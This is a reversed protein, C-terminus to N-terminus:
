SSYVGEKKAHVSVSGELFSMIAGELQTIYNRAFAELEDDYNDPSKLLKARALFNLSGFYARAIILGLNRQASELNFTDKKLIFKCNLYDESYDSGIKVPVVLSSGHFNRWINKSKEVILEKASKSKKRCPAVGVSGSLQMLIQYITPGFGATAVVNEIHWVTDFRKFVIAALIDGESSLLALMPYYSSGAKEPHFGERKFYLGLGDINRIAM